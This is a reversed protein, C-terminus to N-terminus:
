AAMTGRRADEPIGEWAGRLTDNVSIVSAIAEVDDHMNARTIQRSMYDYLRELNVATDGGSDFNLSSRLADLIGAAKRIQGAKVKVDGREIAGRAAALAETLGEYLLAVLRHPDATEVSGYAGVCRYQALPSRDLSTM